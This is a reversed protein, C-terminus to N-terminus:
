VRMPMIGALRSDATVVLPDFAGDFALQIADAGIMSELLYRRNFCIFFLDVHPAYIPDISRTTIQGDSSATIEIKDNCSLKVKDVCMSKLSAAFGKCAVQYVANHDRTPIVQDIPPFDEGITKTYLNCVGNVGFCAHEEGQLVTTSGNYTKCCAALLYSARRPIIMQQMDSVSLPLRDTHLRHGDTASLRLGSEDVYWCLGRIAANRTEDQSIAPNCFDLGAALRDSDWSATVNSISDPRQPFDCDQFVPFTASGDALHVAVTLDSNLVFEVSSKDTKSCKVVKYLDHASVCFTNFVDNCEVDIALWSDLDTGEICAVDRSPKCSVKVTTIVPMSSKKDVLKTLCSLAQSLEYRKVKM